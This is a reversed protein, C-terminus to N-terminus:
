GASRRSRTASQTRATYPSRQLFRRRPFRPPREHRTKESSEADARKRVRSRDGARTLVASPDPEDPAVHFSAFQVSFTLVLQACWKEVKRSRRERERRALAGYSVILAVEYVNLVTPLVLISASTKRGALVGLEFRPRRTQNWPPPSRMLLRLFM